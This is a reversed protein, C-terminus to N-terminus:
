QMFFEMIKTYKEEEPLHDDVLLKHPFDKTLTIKEQISQYNSDSQKRLIVKYDASLDAYSGSDDLFQEYIQEATEYFHVTYLSHQYIQHLAQFKGLYEKNFFETFFLGSRVDDKRCYSELLEFMLEDDPLYQGEICEYARIGLETKQTYEENILDIHSFYSLKFSENLKNLLKFNKAAGTDFIILNKM